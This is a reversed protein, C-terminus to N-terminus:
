ETGEEPPLVTSIRANEKLRIGGPAVSLPMRGLESLQLTPHFAGRECMATRTQVTLPRDATLNENYEVLYQGGELRWWQYDDEDDRWVKEHASVNPRELEDGGFDVRGPTEVRLVEAVTLDLGRDTVQTGEHLLGDVLTTLQSPRM